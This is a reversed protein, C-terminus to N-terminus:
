LNDHSNYVTWNLHCMGTLYYIMGYIHDEGFHLHEDHSGNENLMKMIPKVINTRLALMIDPLPQQNEVMPFISAYFENKINSFLDYIIQQASPYYKFREARRAYLDKQRMAEQIQHENFRGDQLKKEAPRNGPLETLYFDLEDFVNQTVGKRIELRLRDFDTALRSSGNGYVVTSESVYNNNVTTASPNIQGAQDVNYTQYSVHKEEDQKM